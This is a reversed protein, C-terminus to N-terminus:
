FYVYPGTGDPFEGITDDMWYAGFEIDEDTATGYDNTPDDLWYGFRGSINFTEARIKLRDEAYEVYSIQMPEAVQVGDAGQLVRSTVEVLTALEIGARDKVDLTASLVKPPDTYRALLRETIVSVAADDGTRGFWRTKVAKFAEQSYLNDDVSAITVKAFNNENLDATWDIVGHYMWMASIRQDEDRDIEVTGEIIHAADTIPYFSEGPLLPANVKFKVEQAQVDPWVMMGLQCIEGVLLKVGTSKSLIVRGSVLGGVWADYNEQWDATPVVASNIGAHTTLLDDIIDCFRWGDYVICEQVIDLASHTAATTGEQGRKTFTLVDGSITYPMIERGIRVLGSAAYGAGSGAPTLTATTATASIASELKGPSVAPAVAKENDALDLVDMATITVVGAANPGKWESLVYAEVPMASIADGFYGRRVRADLGLYYPYRAVLRGLFTGNDAPSYGVGSFLAAGSVREALYADLWVDADNFDQLTINVRARKGLATKTPDISSLNLDGPRTSVSALAPYLGAVKPLGDVNEGFVITKTGAEYNAPDQCTARSNFCKAAGDTGLVATCPSSGYTRTCYPLDIEVLTLPKRGLEGM